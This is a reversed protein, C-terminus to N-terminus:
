YGSEEKKKKKKWRRQHGSLWLPEQLYALIKTETVQVQQKIQLTLNM